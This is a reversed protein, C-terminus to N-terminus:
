VKKFASDPHFYSALADYLQRDQVAPDKDRFIARKIAYIRWLADGMEGLWREHYGALADADTPRGAGLHEALFSGAIVGGRLATHIGGGQIELIRANRFREAMFSARMFRQLHTKADRDTASRIVGLGIEAYGGGKPFVWAYGGPACGHGTVIELLGDTAVGDVVYQLCSALESLRIDTRLGAWKGIQSMLGDAAVVVRAHVTVPEGFRRLDLAVRGEGAPRFGAAETKLWVTVGAREALTMGYRDFRRRDVVYGLPRHGYDDPKLHRYDLRTQRGDSDYVAFGYIPCVVFEDEPAIDADALAHASVAGSCQIPAGLEQRKDVLLVRLGGVAAYRATSAGAPGSGIVVVDFDFPTERQM